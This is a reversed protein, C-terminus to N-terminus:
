SSTKKPESEVELVETGQLDPGEVGDQVGEETERHKPLQKSVQLRKDPGEVKIRAPVVRSNKCDKYGQKVTFSHRDVQYFHLPDKARDRFKTCVLNWSTELLHQV